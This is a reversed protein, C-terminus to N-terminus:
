VSSTDVFALLTHRSLHVLPKIHCQTVSSSSPFRRDRGFTMSVRIARNLRTDAIWLLISIAIRM